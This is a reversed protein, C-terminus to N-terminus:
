HRQQEGKGERRNLALLIWLVQRAPSVPLNTWYNKLVTKLIDYFTGSINQAKQGRLVM